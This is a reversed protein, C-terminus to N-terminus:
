SLKITLHIYFEKGTEHIILEHRSPYLLQLRQKVNILGIGNNNKEPDAETRLHKSNNVDFHLTNEKLNLVIKIHSPDRFSIGHKFANEVFPILLMPAIQIFAVPQEINIEIKIDPNQDTRLKQFSIYNNLYEIERILSIKEQVNEHLMFRMMDGLREIGERTREANEQIAMGYITNLANFLFHPNIQSRLFDFSAHTQGLEKRLAYLEEAGKNHRKFLMWSLPTTIFLQFFANLIALNLGAGDEGTMLFTLLGIPFSTIVLVLMMKLIYDLLPRKTPLSQPILGYFSYSYLAIAFPMMIAWGIIVEGEADVAILFLMSVMWLICSVLGDQTITRKQSDTEPSSLLYLIAHKVASYFGLVLVVAYAQLFSNRLMFSLIGDAWPDGNEYREPTHRLSEFLFGLVLFILVIFAYGLWVTEKKLLRPVIWFNILCFALFVALCKMLRFAFGEVVPERFPIDALVAAVLLFIALWIEAKRINEPKSFFEKMENNIETCPLPSCVNLIPFTISVSRFTVFEISTRVVAKCLLLKKITTQKTVFKRHRTVKLKCGKLRQSIKDM